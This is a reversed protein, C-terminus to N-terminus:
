AGFRQQACATLKVLAARLDKVPVSVAAPTARTAGCGALVQCLQGAATDVCCGAARTARCSRVAGPGANCDICADNCPDLTAAPGSLLVSAANEMSLTLPCLCLVLM